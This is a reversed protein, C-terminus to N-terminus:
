AQAARVLEIPAAHDEVELTEEAPQYKGCASCEPPAGAREHLFPLLGMGTAAPLPLVAMTPPGPLAAGSVMVGLVFYGGVLALKWAPNARVVTDHHCSSCRASHHHASM